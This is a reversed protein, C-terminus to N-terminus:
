QALLAMARAPAADLQEVKLPLCIFQFLLGTLLHLNNLNEIILLERDFLLHHIPYHSSSLPDPSISDMGVGKIKKHVLWHAAEATLVPYGTLYAETGWQDAWGTCFLVFDVQNISAEWDKLLDITIDSNALSRCDIALAPGMFYDPTYQDLTKGGKVMHAPADIHTGMHSTLTLNREAFGDTAVQAIWELGPPPTGPYVSIGPHIVHSLDIIAPPHSHEIM